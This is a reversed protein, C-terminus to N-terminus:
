LQLNVEMASYLECFADGDTADHHGKEISATMNVTLVSDVPLKKAAIFGHVVEALAFGLGMDFDIKLANGKGIMRTTDM